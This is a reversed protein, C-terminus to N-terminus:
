AATLLAQLRQLIARTENQMQDIEAQDRTIQERGLDINQICEGVAARLEGRKEAASPEFTDTKDMTFNVELRM